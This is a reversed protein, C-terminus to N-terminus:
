DIIAVDIPKDINKEYSDIDLNSKTLKPLPVNQIEGRM